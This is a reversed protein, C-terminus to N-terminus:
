TRRILGLRLAEDLIQELTERTDPHVVGEHELEQVNVPWPSRRVYDAVQIVADLFSDPGRFKM